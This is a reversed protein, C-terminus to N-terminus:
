IHQGTWRPFGEPPRTCKRRADVGIWGAMVCAHGQLVHTLLGNWKYLFPKRQHDFQKTSAPRTDSDARIGIQAPPEQSWNTSAPYMQPPHFPLVFVEIGTLMFWWQGCWTQIRL